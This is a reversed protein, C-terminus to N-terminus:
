HQQPATYIKEDIVQQLNRVIVARKTKLSPTLMGNAETFQSDLIEFKRISEARSVQKNAVSVARSVEARVLPNERAEQLSEVEAAGQSALWSNTDALDLTVLAAIFPKRDGIVVCQAVVPSTMVSAELGAPSVNKGGATIILDKKRGTITVFGQEDIDGLDGTHFWGNADFTDATAEPANHYGRAISGGAIVIEDDDAVGISMGAMPVGVTGIRYGREPNVTAPACTETLGYGELLPLGCGNFFHAIDQDLPAGGCVIYDVNGGLVERIKSYVLASYVNRQLNLWAPIRESRGYVVDQQARSWARAIRAARAFLYGAAGRGAKQTAANYVKEFVRPVGLVLTPKVHRFDQLITKMSGGISLKMESEFVLFQMFRAFVHAFPLFCLYSGNPRRVIGPMSQKSAECISVFNRHEIEVGKPTGTSGSTYVITALTSGTVSSIAQDLTEDSVERGLEKLSDLAHNEIVYVTKLLPTEPKVADFKALQEDDEAFAYQVAADLLINKVQAPSNTEYIPVTIAGIAMIATDLATWEYRTHSLIAVPTGAGVGSALLGKALERVLTTFETASMEHWQNNKDRYEVLTQEPMREVRDQLITYISRDVDVDESPTTYQKKM